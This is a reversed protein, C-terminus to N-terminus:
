AESVSIIVAKPNDHRVAKAAHYPTFGYARIEFREVGYNGHQFDCTVFYEQM